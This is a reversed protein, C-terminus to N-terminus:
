RLRLNLLLGKPVETKDRHERRERHHISKKKIFYFKTMLSLFRGSDNWKESLDEPTEDGHKTNGAGVQPSDRMFAKPSRGVSRPLGVRSVRGLQQVRVRGLAPAQEPLVPV